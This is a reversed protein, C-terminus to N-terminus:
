YGYKRLFESEPERLISEIVSVDKPKLRAKQGRNRNAWGKLKWDGLEPIFECIRKSTENPQECIEKYTVLISKDRYKSYARDILKMCNLWHRACREASYTYGSNQKCRRMLGETVAYPCRILFIFKSPRFVEHIQDAQILDICPTKELLIPKSTDWGEMWKEKIGEWDYRSPDGFVDLHETYLREFGIKEEEGAPSLGKADPMRLRHWGEKWSLVSVQPSEGLNELLRTSGSNHMSLIFLYM